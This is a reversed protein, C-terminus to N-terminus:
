MLFSGHCNDANMRRVAEPDGYCRLLDEADEMRMERLRYKAAM